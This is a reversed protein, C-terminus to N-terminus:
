WKARASYNFMSPQPTDCVGYTAQKYLGYLHLMAQPPLKLIRAATASAVFTAANHFAMEAESTEVGEWDDEEDDQLTSSLVFNASVQCLHSTSSTEFAALAIDPLGGEEVTPAPPAATTNAAINARPLIPLRDHDPIRNDAHHIQAPLPPELAAMDHLGSQLTEQIECRQAPSSLDTAESPGLRSDEELGTREPTIDTASVVEGDVAGCQSTIGVNADSTRVADNFEEESQRQARRIRLNGTRFDRVVTVLKYVMWAFLSTVLVNSICEEWDAM